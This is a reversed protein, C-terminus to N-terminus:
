SFVSAKPAGVSARLANDAQQFSGTREHLEAFWSQLANATVPNSSELFAVLAQLQKTDTQLASQSTAPWGIVHIQSEYRDLATQYPGAVRDLQQGPASSSAATFEWSAVQSAKDLRAAEQEFQNIQNATLGGADAGSAPTDGGSHGGSLGHAILLGALVLLLAAVGVLAGIMVKKRNAGTATSSADDTSSSASALLPSQSGQMGDAVIPPPPPTVAGTPPPPRSSSRATTVPPPPRDARGSGVTGPIPTVGDFRPVAGNAQQTAEPAAPLLQNVANSSPPPPRDARAPLAIGPIPAVEAPRPAADVAQQTAQPATSLLQNVGNRSPPPPRDERAPVAPAPLPTGATSSRVGDDVKQPSEPPTTELLPIVPVETTIPEVGVPRALSAVPASTADPHTPAASPQAPSYQVPDLPEPVPSPVRWDWSDITRKLAEIRDDIGPTGFSPTAEGSNVAVRPSIPATPEAHDDITMRRSGRTDAPRKLSSELADPHETVALPRNRQFAL